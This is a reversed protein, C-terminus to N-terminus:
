SRGFSPNKLTITFSKGIAYGYSLTISLPTTFAPEAPDIKAVCRISYENANLNNQLLFKDTQTEGVYCPLKQGSMFADVKITNLDETKLAETGLCRKGYALSDLVVGKGSVDQVSIRFEIDHQNTYYFSEVKTVALPAGQSPSIQADYFTCGSKMDTLGFTLQPNICVVPSAETKYQYCAYAEFTQQLEKYDPLTISDITFFKTTKEGVPVFTSRGDLNIGEIKPLGNFHVYQPNYGSISLIVNEVKHVGVNELQIPIQLGQGVSVESPLRGITMVLGDSGQIDANQGGKLLSTCGSLVLTLTIVLILKKM